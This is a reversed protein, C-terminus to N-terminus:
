VLYHLERKLELGITTNYEKKKYFTVPQIEIISNTIFVEDVKLLEYPSIQVEEIKFKQSKNIIEILKKRIIGKICGDSIPPTKIVNGIVLFLNGNTAEVVNKKENLLICNDLSNESAYISGLINILKSTTKLTSLLGSSVFYDKFIEIEYNESITDDLNKVEILYEIANSKPLYLGGDRRFVTIRVRANILNSSNLTKLIENQFFELSFQLPIQMRLMRMSAMLRFYHDELFMMKLNIVKITEFLADGYKFARNSHHFIPKNNTLITGNLNM